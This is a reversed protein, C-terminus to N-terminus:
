ILGASTLEAQTICRLLSLWLRPLGLGPVNGTGPIPLTESYLPQVFSVERSGQSQGSFVYTSESCVLQLGAEIWNGAEVRRRGYLWLTM